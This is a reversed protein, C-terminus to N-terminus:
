PSRPTRSSASDPDIWPRRGPTMQSRYVRERFFTQGDFGTRYWRQRAEDYYYDVYVGRAADQLPGLLQRRIAPLADRYTADTSVILGREMPGGADMLIVPIADNVVMWYEFQIYEERPERLDFDGLTQTPMGYVRQLRARLDRGLTTDAFSFSRTRGLFSWRVDAFTTQFWERELKRVRRVEHVVFAPKNNGEHAAQAADNTQLVAPPEVPITRPQLPRIGRHGQQLLRRVISQYRAARYREILHESPTQQAQSPRPVVMLALVLVLALVRM